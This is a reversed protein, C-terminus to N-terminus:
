KTSNFANWQTKFTSRESLAFKPQWFHLAPFTWCTIVNERNWTFNRAAEVLKNHITFKYGILHHANLLVKCFLISYLLGSLWMYVIWIGKWIYDHLLLVGEIKDNTSHSVNINSEAWALRCKKCRSYVQAAQHLNMMQRLDFHLPIDSYKGLRKNYTSQFRQFAISHRLNIAINAVIHRKDDCNLLSSWLKPLM